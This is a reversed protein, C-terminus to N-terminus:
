FDYVWEDNKFVPLGGPVKPVTPVTPVDVGNSSAADAATGTPNEKAKDISEQNIGKQVDFIPNGEGQSNM